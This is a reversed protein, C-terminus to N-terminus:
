LIYLLSRLIYSVVEVLFILILPSFDFMGVLPVVRRIPALLPNVIQDLTRRLPHYPSLFYTLFTDVIIVIILLNALINIGQAIFSFITHM